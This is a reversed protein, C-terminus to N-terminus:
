TVVHRSVTKATQQKSVTGLFAGFIINLKRERSFKMDYRGRQKAPSNTTDTFTSLLSKLLSNVQFVTTKADSRLALFRM